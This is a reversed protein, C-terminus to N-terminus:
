VLEIFRMLMELSIMLLTFQSYMSLYPWLYNQEVLNMNYFDKNFNLHNDIETSISTYHKM